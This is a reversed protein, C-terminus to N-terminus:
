IPEYWNSYINELNCGEIRLLRTLGERRPSHVDGENYLHAAGPKLVYDRLHRAKGPVAGDPPEVPTWDAMMTEGAAQGYIAWTPGHDHPKSLRSQRDVHGVICFGLEADEYLIQRASVTDDLYVSVFDPDACARAILACLKARGDPGPDAALIARCEAALTELTHPM